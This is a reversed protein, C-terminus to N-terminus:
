IDFDIKSAKPPFIANTLEPLNVSAMSVTDGSKTEYQKNYLIGFVQADSLHRDELLTKEALLVTVFKTQNKM